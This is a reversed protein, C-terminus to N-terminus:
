LAEHPLIWEFEQPGFYPNLPPQPANESTIPIAELAIKSNLRRYPSLAIIQHKTAASRM